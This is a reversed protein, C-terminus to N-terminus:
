NKKKEGKGLISNFNIIDSLLFFLNGKCESVYWYFNLLCLIYFFIFKIVIFCYEKLM